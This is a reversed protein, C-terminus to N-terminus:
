KREQVPQVQPLIGIEDIWDINERARVTLRLDDVVAVNDLPLDDELEDDGVVSRIAGGGAFRASATGAVIAVVDRREAVEDLEPVFIFGAVVFVDAPPDDGGRAEVVFVARRRCSPSLCDAPVVAQLELLFISGVDTVVRAFPALM